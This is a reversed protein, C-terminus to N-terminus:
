RTAWDAAYLRYLDAIRAEKADGRHLVVRYSLRLPTARHLPVFELGPYSVNLVGYYRFLWPPPSGPHDPAALIAIGSPGGKTSGPFDGSCDAWHARYMLGDKKMEEGDAVIRVSQPKPWRFTFGGYGKNLVDTGAIQLGEVLAYLEIDVDFVQRDGGTLASSFLRITVAERVVRQPRPMQATQHDWFGEATLTALVPGSERHLIRGLRYRMDKREWWNGLMKDGQRLRPWAWFLGRHHLHDAPQNQTLVQGDLGRIPHIFGLVANPDAKGDLDRPGHNYRLVARGCDIFDTAQELIEKLLVVPADSTSAPAALRIELTRGQQGTAVTLPLWLMRTAKAGTASPAAVVQAPTGAPLAGSATLVRAAAPVAPDCPVGIVVPLGTPADDPVRIRITQARCAAALAAPLVAALVIRIRQSRQM